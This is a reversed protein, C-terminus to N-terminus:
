STRVSLDALIRQAANHGAAGIVSGAPHCGASCAYLGPIGTAYPMRQDLAFGNDIHHIHGHRIGFHREIGPPPLAFVDAVLETTGPAFRDCISLLHDVYRSTEDDWSSGAIDYPVSQVFLASSHHGDDDQLSPDVTTHLYWEITPWEPLRGAQVDAWMARVSDMPSEQALLHITSGFPSPAGPPLCAFDPLGRLALNVKLTTGPRRVDQLRRQLTPPLDILDALSFPDCGAVVVDATVTHGDTLAVGTVAGGSTTVAAVPADALIVAGAQRARDAIQGAVTGMGGRVIMWTGDGSRGRMDSLRCMNHVLFNHGSGPTDPGAHLGSLGDTVAYMTPLLETKFPFRALYDAVSGRVLAVFVERLAPRVYREATQEVDVPEALWAPALDDRLAAIEAALADDAEADDATFMSAFSRRTADRDSGMLLYRHDLTPLFYHPDRRLIPLELDLLRMLEPPMLGLLYSGTSQQLGPVNAFPRETRAAGGIVDDRELVVVSLGARALLAAAVLGNHGAGVVVVDAAAPLDTIMTVGDHLGMSTGTDRGV